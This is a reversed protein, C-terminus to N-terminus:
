RSRPIFVISDSLWLQGDSDRLARGWTTKRRKENIKGLQVGADGWALVWPIRKKDFKISHVRADNPITLYFGQPKSWNRFFDDLEVTIMTGLRDHRDMAVFGDNSGDNFGVDETLYTADVPSFYDVMFNGNEVVGHSVMLNTTEGSKQLTLSYCEEATWIPRSLNGILTVTGDPDSPDFTWIECDASYANALVFVLDLDPSYDADTIQDIGLDESLPVVRGKKTIRGWRTQTAIQSPEATDDTYEISYMTGGSFSYSQVAKAPSAGFAALGLAIAVSVVHKM